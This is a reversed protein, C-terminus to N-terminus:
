SKEIQNNSNVSDLSQISQISKPSQSTQEAEIDEIQLKEENVENEENNVTNIYGPRKINKIDYEKYPRYDLQYRLTNKNEFLNFSIRKEEFLQNNLEIYRKYIDQRADRIEKTEQETESVTYKYEEIKREIEFTIDQIKKANTSERDKISKLMDVYLNNLYNLHEEAKTYREKTEDSNEFLEYLIEYKILVLKEKSAKIKSKLLDLYDYDNMIMKRNDKLQVYLNEYEKLSNELVQKYTVIKEYNVKKNNMKKTVKNIKNEYIDGLKEYIDRIEM